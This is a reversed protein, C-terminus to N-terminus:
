QNVRSYTKPHMTTSSRNGEATGRDVGKQPRSRASVCHEAGTRPITSRVVSLKPEDRTHRKRVRSGNTDTKPARSRQKRGRLRLVALQRRQEPILRRQTSSGHHRRRGGGGPNPLALERLAGLRRVEHEHHLITPVMPLKEHAAARTKSQTPTPTRQIAFLTSTPRSM